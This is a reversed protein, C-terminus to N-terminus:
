KLINKELIWYLIVGILPLFIILLAWILKNLKKPNKGTILVYLTYVVIVFWVVQLITYIINGALLLM